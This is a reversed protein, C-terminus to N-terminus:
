PQSHFHHIIPRCKQHGQVARHTPEQGPVSFHPSYVLNQFRTPLHLARRGIITTRTGMWPVWSALDETQAIPIHPTVGGPCSLRGALWLVCMWALHSTIFPWFVRHHQPVYSIIHGASLAIYCGDRLFGGGGGSTICASPITVGLWKLLDWNLTKPWMYAGQKKTSINDITSVM